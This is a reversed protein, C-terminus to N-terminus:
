RESMIIANRTELSPHSINTDFLECRRDNSGNGCKQANRCGLSKAFILYLAYKEILQFWQFARSLHFKNFYIFLIFSIHRRYNKKNKTGLRLLFWTNWIIMDVIQLANTVSCIFLVEIHFNGFWIIACVHEVLFLHRSCM